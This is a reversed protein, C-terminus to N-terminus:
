AHGTFAPARPVTLAVLELMNTMGRGCAKKSAANEGNSGNYHTRMNNPTTCGNKIVEQTTSASHQGSDNDSIDTTLGGFPLETASGPNQFPPKWAYM